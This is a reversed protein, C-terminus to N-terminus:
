AVGLEMSETLHLQPIGWAKKVFLLPYVKEKNVASNLSRKMVHNCDISEM